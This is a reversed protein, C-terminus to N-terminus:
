ATAAKRVQDRMKQRWMHLSSCYRRNGIPRDFAVELEADCGDCECIAPTNLRSCFAAVRRRLAARGRNGSGGSDIQFVVEYCYFSDLITFTSTQVSRAGDDETIRAGQLERWVYRPEDTM